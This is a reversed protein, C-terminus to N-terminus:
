AAERAPVAMGLVLDLVIGHEDSVTSTKLARDAALARRLAADLEAGRWAEATRAFRAAEEKWNRLGFPRAALLHRFVVGAVRAPPTGADLEARALAAGLLASGLATVIRVGSMGTQALVPDILAAARAPRRELCADVLDYITADRRAGVLATVDAATAPRREALSALKELERALTGLDNGVARTLLEVADPELTVGLAQARHAVWRPVRGPDLRTCDVAEAHAALEADPPTGTSQILVLLTTPSPNALYRMLEDRLRSKRKFHEVGRLVVARREALLPPTNVLAHLADPDLEAASRQDLNFDRAGADLARDLLAQLAEDKLVDEDGHLYYVSGAVGQKSLSRLLADFRSAGM